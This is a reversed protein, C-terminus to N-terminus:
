FFLSFSFLGAIDEDFVTLEKVRKPDEADEVVQDFDRTRHKTAYQKRTGVYGRHAKHGHGHRERGM